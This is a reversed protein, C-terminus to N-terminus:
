NGKINSFLDYNKIYSDYAKKQLSLDIKKWKFKKNHLLILKKVVYKLFEPNRVLIPGIIYTGMVNKYFFGEKQEQEFSTGRVVKFLPQKVIDMSSDRNQFGIIPDKIEPFIAVIESVTRKEQYYCCYDFIELGIQKDEYVKKGLLEFANGTLLFIKGDDIAMKIDEKYKQLDEWVIEQNYNTGSGMYIFDYESFSIASGLSLRDVRYKLGQNNLECCLAKINGSEGYLNMLDDYLHLIKIM